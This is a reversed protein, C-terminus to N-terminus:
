LLLMILPITFTSMLTTVFVCRSALNTDANYREAFLATNAAAPMAMILVPIGLFIGSYGLFKLILYTVIPIAILRVFTIVYTTSSGFIEKVNVDALMSGIIIMSLPTTTSGVMELTKYLPEPINISLMFVLLGILVSLIGPNILAKKYNKDEKEPSFLMVGVTWILINFSINFIATYFVGEKGYVSEVVPYGMFGCNSFIMSFRLVSKVEKPYKIFIYKSAFVLSLHVLASILLLKGANLLMDKSFPFNFSAIIMFPLTVNLILETLGKNMKKDIIGKKRIFFGVVIIFFLVLVQTFIKQTNM